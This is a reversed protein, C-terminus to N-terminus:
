QIRRVYSSRNTDARRLLYTGTDMRRIVVTDGPNIRLLEEVETQIWVQGNELEFTYRSNANHRVSRVKATLVTPRSVNSETDQRRQLRPNMGFDALPDVPAGATAAVSATAVPASLSRGPEATDKGGSSRRFHRDYCSLRAGDDTIDVCPPPESAAAPLSLLLVMLGTCAMAPRQGQLTMMRSRM